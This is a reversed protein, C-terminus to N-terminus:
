PRGSTASTQFGTFENNEPKAANRRRLERRLGDLPLWVSGSAQLRFGSV